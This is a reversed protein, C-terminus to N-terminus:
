SVAIHIHRGYAAWSLLFDAQVYVPAAHQSLKTAPHRALM